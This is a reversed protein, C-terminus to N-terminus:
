AVSDDARREFFGRIEDRFGAVIFLAFTPYDIFRKRLALVEELGLALRKIAEPDKSDGQTAPEMIAAVMGPFWVYRFIILYGAVLASTVAIWTMAKRVQSRRSEMVEAILSAVSFCAIALFPRARLGDAWWTILYFFGALMPIVAWKLGTQEDSSLALRGKRSSALALNFLPVHVLIIVFLSMLLGQLGKGFLIPLPDELRRLFRGLMNAGIIGALLYYWPFKGLWLLGRMFWGLLPNGMRLAEALGVRADEHGPDIRLAEIFHQEAVDAKGALQAVWGKACHNTADDPDDSLLTNAMHGAEDHRGAKGLLISRFFRCTDNDPDLSLGTEAATLAEADKSLEALISARIGHYTADDPDIGIATDIAALAEKHRSRESLCRALLFYASDADPDMAVLDRVVQEALKPKSQDLLAVALFFLLEPNGPDRAIEERALKEAAEPRNRSLLFEISSVSM